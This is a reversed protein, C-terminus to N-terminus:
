GFSADVAVLMTRADEGGIQDGAIAFVRSGDPALALTVPMLKDDFAIPSWALPELTAADLALLTLRPQNRRLEGPDGGLVWLIAGDPSTHLAAFPVGLLAMFLANFGVEIPKQAHVTAGEADHVSLLFTQTALDFSVSYLSTEDPSLALMGPLTLPSFPSPEALTAADLTRIGDPTGLFHRGTRHAVIHILTPDTAIPTPVVPAFTARDLLLFQNTGVTRGEIQVENTVLVLARHDHTVTLHFPPESGDAVYAGSGAVLDCTTLDYGYVRGGFSLLYLVTGDPAVAFTDIGTGDPAVLPSRPLRELTRADLFHIGSADLVILHTGDPVCRMHFAHDFEVIGIGRAITFRIDLSRSIGPIDNAAYAVLTYRSLVPQQPTVDIRPRAAATPTLYM